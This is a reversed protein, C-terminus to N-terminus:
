DLLAPLETRAKVGLKRYARALHSEVTKVSIFLTAAIEVNTAGGAALQVTRLQAPTLSEIGRLALRAPRSGCARLQAVVADSITPAHFRHAIDGAARLVTVAREDEGRHRLARGLELRSTITLLVDQSQDAAIVAEDLLEISDDPRAAALGGLAIALPGPAGFTRALDVGQRAIDRASRLDGHKGLARACGARWSTVAPNRAGCREALQAAAAFHNTAADADGEVLAVWGLSEPILYPDM